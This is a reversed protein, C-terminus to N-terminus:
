GPDRSDTNRQDEHEVRAIVVVHRVQGIVQRGFQPQQGSVDDPVHLCQRVNGSGVHVADPIAASMQMDPNEGPRFSLSLQVPRPQDDPVVQQRLIRRVDGVLVRRNDCFRIIFAAQRTPM